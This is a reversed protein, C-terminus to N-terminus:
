SEVGDKYFELYSSSGDGGIFEFEEGDYLLEGKECTLKNVDFDGEGRYEWDGSNEWVKVLCFKSNKIIEPIVEIVPQQGYKEYDSFPNEIEEDDVEFTSDCGLVVIRESEMLDVDSYDTVTEWLEEMEEADEPDADICRQIFQQRKILDEDEEWGDPVEDWGVYDYFVDIQEYLSRVYITFSM